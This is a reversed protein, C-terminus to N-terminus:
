LLGFIALVYMVALIVPQHLLYIILTRQGVKAIPNDGLDVSFLSRRKPYLIRALFIGYLFLGSYPILPYFDFTHYNPATLGLFLLYNHTMPITLVVQGALIMATGLLLLLANSLKNYIPYLLVSVGLFHLIGFAVFLRPDYILTVITVLMAAALIKLSRLLNSGSFSCSIATIMIFLYVAVRGIVFIIGTQYEIPVNYFNNLNWIIHFFIMLILAIGRFFDIEGVRVKKGQGARSKNTVQFM